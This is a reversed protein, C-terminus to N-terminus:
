NVFPNYKREEGITTFEGHGPYVKVEDPLMMLKHLSGSKDKPSSHPFDDRGISQKFLTDGSFLIHSDKLYYCVSGKTHFPTEIVRIPESLLKLEDKESVTKTPANIVSQQGNIYVSLNKNADKLLEEDYFGIFVPIQFEDVLIDVGRIHDCHGHTLLIGRPTLGNKKIFRVLGDYSKSPDVILCDKNDIVIYTNAMLDDFDNYIFPVIKM